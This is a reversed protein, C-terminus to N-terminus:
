FSGSRVLLSVSFYMFSSAFLFFGFWVSVLPPAVPLPTRVWRVWPDTMTYGGTHLSHSRLRLMSSNCGRSSTKDLLSVACSYLFDCKTSSRSPWGLDDSIVRYIVGVLLKYYLLTDITKCRKRFIVIKSIKATHTHTHTHTHTVAYWRWFEKLKRMGSVFYEWEQQGTDVKKKIAARHFLAPWQRKTRHKRRRRDEIM